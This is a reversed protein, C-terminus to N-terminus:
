TTRSRRRSLQGYAIEALLVLAPMLLIIFVPADLMSLGVVLGGSLVLWTLVATRSIRLRMFEAGLYYYPFVIIVLFTSSLLGAILM